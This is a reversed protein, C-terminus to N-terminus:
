CSFILRVCLLTNAFPLVSTSVEVNTSEIIKQVESMKKAKLKQGEGISL